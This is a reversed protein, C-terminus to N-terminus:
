RSSRLDIVEVGPPPEFRFVDDPPGLDVRMNEFRIRTRNGFIDVITTEAIEGSGADATLGLREYSAPQRPMLDLKVTDGSCSEASIEFSETLKGDGLLFQLAAGALFGREVPLRSAQRAGVDYIWLTQGDSLVLSPEPEVYSWRMRGPKAFIVKGRLPVADGISGGALVVSHSTQEFDAALDHIAEYRAQVRRAVDLARSPGCASAAEEPPAEGAAGAGAGGALVITLVVLLGQRTTRGNVVGALGTAGM